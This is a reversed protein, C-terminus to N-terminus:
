QDTSESRAPTAQELAKSLDKQIQRKVDAPSAAKGESAAANQPSGQQASMGPTAVAQLQRKAVWGVAALALLLSVLSFITKM